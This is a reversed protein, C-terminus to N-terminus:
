NEESSAKIKSEFAKGDKPAPLGKNGADYFTSYYLFQGTSVISLTNFHNYNRSPNGNGIWRTSFWIVNTFECFIVIAAWKASASKLMFRFLGQEKFQQASTSHMIALVSAIMGFANMVVQSMNLNLATQKYNDAAADQHRLVHYAMNSHFIPFSILVAVMAVGISLGALNAYLKLSSTKFTKVARYGVMGGVLVRTIAMNTITIILLGEKWSLGYGIGNIENILLGIIGAFFMLSKFVLLGTFMKSEWKPNKLEEFNNVAFLLVFLNIVLCIPYDNTIVYENAKLTVCTSM